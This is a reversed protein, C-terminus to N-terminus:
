EGLSPTVASTKSGPRSPSRDPHPRTSLPREPRHYHDDDRTQHFNLHNDGGPLANSGSAVVSPPFPVPSGPSGDCALRCRGGTPPATAWLGCRRCIRQRDSGRTVHRLGGLAAITKAPCVPVTGALLGPGHEPVGPPPPPPAGPLHGERDGHRAHRVPQHHRQPRLRPQAPGPRDPAAPLVPLCPATRNLGQIQSKEDACLVLAYEPPTM